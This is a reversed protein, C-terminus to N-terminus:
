VKITHEALKVTRALGCEMPDGKGVVPLLVVGLVGMM